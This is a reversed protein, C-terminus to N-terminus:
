RRNVIRASCLKLYLEENAVVQESRASSSVVNISRGRDSTPLLDDTASLNRPSPNTSHGM